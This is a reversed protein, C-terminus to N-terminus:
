VTHIDDKEPICIRRGVQSSHDHPPTIGLPRASYGSHKPGPLNQHLGVGKPSDIYADNQPFIEPGAKSNM